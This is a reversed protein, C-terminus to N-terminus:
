LIANKEFWDIIDSASKYEIFYDTVGAITQQFESGTKYLYATKIQKAKAFGVELGVGVSKDSAEALLLDSKEIERFANEMLTKNDVKQRFDFVFAYVAISKGSFYGLLEEHLQRYKEKNIFSYSVFIRKVM